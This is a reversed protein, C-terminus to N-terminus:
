LLNDLLRLQVPSLDRPLNRRAHTPSIIFCRTSKPGKISMLTFSLFSSLYSFTAFYSIHIGPGMTDLIYSFSLQIRINTQISLEQGNVFFLLCLSHSFVPVGKGPWLFSDNTNIPEEFCLCNCVLSYDLLGRLADHIQILLRFLRIGGECPSINYITHFCLVNYLSFRIPLGGASSYNLEKFRISPIFSTTEQKTYLYQNYFQISRHYRYTVGKTYKM